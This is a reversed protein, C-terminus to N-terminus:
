SALVYHGKVQYTQGPEIRDTSGRLETVTISDGPRFASWGTEFLEVPIVNPLPELQPTAHLEISIADSAQGGEKILRISAAKQQIDIKVVEYDEFRDGERYWNSASGTQIQARKAGEAEEVRLLQLDRPLVTKVSAPENRNVAVKEVPRWFTAADPGGAEAIHAESSVWIGGEKAAFTLDLMRLMTDLAEIVPLDLVSLYPLIAAGGSADLARQDISIDLDYSEGLFALVEVVPIAEFILSVPSDLAAKLAPDEINPRSRQADAAIREPTSIWIAHPEVVFALGLPRSISELAQRLPINSVKFYPVRGDTAYGIQRDLGPAQKLISETPKIVRWDLALNVHQSEAISKLLDLLHIDEFELTVPRALAEEIANATEGTASEAAQARASEAPLILALAASALLALLVMVGPGMAAWGHARPEPRGVIRRIRRLLVGGNASLAFAPAHRLEALAALARAYLVANGCTGVALDDCCNEREERIRRSVWWVAPHYFLLTVIATQVLNVAYDHRWIHAVEHAILARLLPADLGTLVSAPLLIVPWVIGAVMPAAVRASELLRVPRTVGLRACIAAAEDLRAQSVPLVDRTMLRRAYFWCGLNWLALMSLGIGWLLAAHPTLPEVWVRWEDLRVAWSRATSGSPVVVSREAILVGTSGPLAAHASVTPGPPEVGPEVSLLQGMTGVFLAAMLLLAACSALYRANASRRRMLALMCVLGLAVLAGQWVFHILSWGLAHAVPGLWSFSLHMM